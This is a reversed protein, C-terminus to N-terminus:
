TMSRASCTRAGWCRRRDRARGPAGAGPRGGDDVPGAGFVRGAFLGPKSGAFALHLDRQDCLLYAVAAVAQRYNTHAGGVTYLWQDRDWGWFALGHERVGGLLAVPDLLSGVM